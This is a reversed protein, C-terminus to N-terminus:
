RMIEQEKGGIYTGENAVFFKKLKEMDNGKVGMFLNTERVQIWM